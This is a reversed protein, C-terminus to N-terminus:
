AQLCLYLFSHTFYKCVTSDSISIYGNKRGNTVTQTRTLRELKTMVVFIYQPPWYTNKWDCDKNENLM